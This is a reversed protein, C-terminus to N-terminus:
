PDQRLKVKIQKKSKRENSKKKFFEQFAKFREHSIFIMKRNDHLGQLSSPWLRLSHSEPVEKFIKCDGRM